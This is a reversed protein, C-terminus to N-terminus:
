PQQMDRIAARVSVAAWQGDAVGAMREAAEKRSVHPFSVRHLKAAHVLAILGATHEDSAVGELVVARLRQLLETEPGSYVETYRRTPFLGLAMLQQEVVVGRACLSEMAARISNVHDRTLWHAVQRKGCGHLWSDLLALRGDILPEGIPTMDTPTLYKGEVSARGALVLELLIGGAVAWSAAQRQEPVGSKDDLSLLMIEEALTVGAM